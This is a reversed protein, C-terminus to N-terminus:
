HHHLTLVVGGVLQAKLAAEPAPRWVNRHSQLLENVVVLRKHEELSTVLESLETLKGQLLNDPTM